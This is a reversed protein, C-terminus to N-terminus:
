AASAATESLIEEGQPRHLADVLASKEASPAPTVLSALMGAAFGLPVAILAICQPVLGFWNAVGPALGNGRLHIELATWAAAKAEGAAASEWAARLAQLQEIEVDSVSALFVTYHALALPFFQLGAVYAVATGFGVLMAAAAGWANFRRWWLALILAPFLGSASLALATAASTALDGIPNLVLAAAGIAVLLLAIRAVTLRELKGAGPRLVRVYVDHGLANAITLLLSSASAILAALIGLAVLGRFLGSSAWGMGAAALAISTLHDPDVWLSQETLRSSDEGAHEAAAPLVTKQFASWREATGLTATRRAAELIAERVPAGTARFQQAAASSGQDLIASIAPADSAGSAVADAARDVLQLSVGHIRIHGLRSQEQMWAPLEGLPIGKEIERYISHKAITAVAPLTSALILAILGTWAVALRTERVTPTTIYRTLLHPLAATGLMISAILAAFMWTSMQLFPSAHPKLTGASAAGKEILSLELESVRSLAEGYALMPAPWGTASFSLLAAPILIAALTVVSLAVATWTVGKRGGLLAPLVIILMAAGLAWVFPVAVLEHLVLAAGATQAALLATLSIVTIIASLFVAFRGSRVAFVDGLSVAGLKRLPAAILLAILALGGMLGVIVALGDFGIAYISGIAGLAAALAIWDAAASLAASGAPVGRGASFYGSLSGDRSQFSILAFVVLVLALLLSAATSSGAGLLEALQLLIAAALFGCIYIAYIKGVDGALDSRYPDTRVVPM